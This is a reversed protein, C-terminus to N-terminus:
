RGPTADPKMCDIAPYRVRAQPTLCRRNDHRAGATATARSLAARTVRRCHRYCAPSSRHRSRATATAGSPDAIARALPAPPVIGLGAPTHKVRWEGWGSAANAYRSGITHM